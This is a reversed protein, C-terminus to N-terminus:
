QVPVRFRIDKQSRTTPSPDDDQIQLKVEYIEEVAGAKIIVDVFLGGPRIITGGILTASADQGAKDVATTNASNVLRGSRLWKTADIPQLFIDFPRKAPVAFDVAM